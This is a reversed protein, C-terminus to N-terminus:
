LKLNNEEEVVVAEEMRGAKELNKAMDESNKQREEEMRGINQPFHSLFIIETRGINQPLHFFIHIERREYRISRGNKWSRRSIKTTNQVYIM